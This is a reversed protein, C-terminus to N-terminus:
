SFTEFFYENEEDCMHLAFFHLLSHRSNRRNNVARSLSPFNKYLANIKCEVSLPSKQSWFWYFFFRWLSCLFEQMSSIESNLAGSFDREGEGNQRPRAFTSVIYYIARINQKSKKDFDYM